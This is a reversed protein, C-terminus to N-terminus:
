KKGRRIMRKLLGMRQENIYGKAKKLCEDFDNCGFTKFYGGAEPGYINCKFRNKYTTVNLMDKIIILFKKYKKTFCNRNM